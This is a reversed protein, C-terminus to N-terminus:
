AVEEAIAVYNQAAASGILYVLAPSNVRLTLSQGARLRFGSTSAGANATISASEGVYVSGTNDDDAKITLPGALAVATDIAAATGTAAAGAKRYIGSWIECTYRFNRDKPETTAANLTTDSM